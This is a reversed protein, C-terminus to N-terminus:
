SATSPAAEATEARHPQRVAELRALTEASPRPTVLSVLINGAFAIPLGILAAAAPKLGWVNAILRAQAQMAALAATDAEPASAAAKLSQYKMVAPMSANSFGFWVEFFAAPMFQTAILYYLVAGGGALMGAAAGWGNSRRWWVGLVLAPFLTVAALPFVWSAFIAADAPRLVTAVGAAGTAVAVAVRATALRRAEPARRDALGHYLDHSLAGALAMALGAATALAAAALGAALLSALMRPLEVMAPLVLMLSHPAISLDQLRLMGRNGAAKRCAAAVAEADAPAVGCVKVMGHRGAEVIWQPLATLPQGHAIQRYVELKALAALAPLMLVVLLVLVMAWAAGTRADAPSRATLSRGLVHPMAALGTMLGLGIGAANLADSSLYPVAHRKLSAGDALRKGIMTFELDGIGHLASGFALPPFVHSTLHWGAVGAAIVVAAAALLYEVAQTWSVAHMGGSLVTLLVVATGVLAATQWALGSVFSAVSAFAAVQLMLLVSAVAVTVLAALVATVRGYRRGLFDAVTVAGSKRVYPALMLAVLMFGGVSGIVVPLADFGRTYLAGTEGLLLSAPLAAAAMAAGNMGPGVGRADVLFVGLRGTRSALAVIVAVALTGSVLVLPLSSRALGMQDLIAVMMIGAALGVVFIAFSLAPSEALAGGGHGEREFKM